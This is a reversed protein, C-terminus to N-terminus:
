ELEIRAQTFKANPFFEKARDVLELPFSNDKNFADIAAVINRKESELVYEEFTWGQKELCKIREYHRVLEHKRTEFITGSFTYLAPIRPEADLFQQLDEFPTRRLVRYTDNEDM